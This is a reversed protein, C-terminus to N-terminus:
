KSQDQNIASLFFKEAHLKVLATYYFRRVSAKGEIETKIEDVLTKDVRFSITVGDAPSALFSINVDKANRKENQFNVLLDKFAGSYIDALFVGSDRAYNKLDAVINKDIKTQQVVLVM